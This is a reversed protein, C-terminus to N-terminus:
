RPAQLSLEMSYALFPDAEDKWSRQLLECDEVLPGAFLEKGNWQVRLPGPKPLLERRLLLQLRRVGKTSLRVTNDDSIEGKVEAVGPDIEIIRLWYHRPFETTRTQFDIRRPFPGRTYKACFAMTLGDDRDLRLDHERGKLIRMETPAARWVGRLAEYTDTSSGPAVVKDRDGHVFLLPVHALNPTLPPVPAPMFLGAGMLSVMAALRHPWLTAFYFAGSGGNSMGAVYVRNPDVNFSSLTEKLLDEVLRASAPTWWAGSAQPFLMLYGSTQRAQISDQLADVAFGTGGSLYILLPFPEDGRYDEPIHIMYPWGRFAPATVPRVFTGPTAPLLIQAAIAPPPLGASACDWHPDIQGARVASALAALRAAGTKTTAGEGLSSWLDDLSSANLEHVPSEAPLRAAVWSRAAERVFQDDDKLAHEILPRAGDKKDLCRVALRRVLPDPSSLLKSLMEPAPAEMRRRCILGLVRSLTAPDGSELLSYLRRADMPLKDMRAAAALVGLRLTPERLWDDMKEDRRREVLEMVLREKTEVGPPQGEFELKVLAGLKPSFWYRVRLRDGASKGEVRMCDEDRMREWAAGSYTFDLISASKWTDGVQVPHDPLSEIEHLGMLLRGGGSERAASWPGAPWGLLDFTNAEAFSVPRDRLEQALEKRVQELRDKGSEKYRLMEATVRNRQFGVSLRGSEEAIVLVDNNWQARTLFDIEETVAEREFRETYMLHDGPRLDYRLDVRSDESHLLSSLLTLGAVVARGLTRTAPVASGTM